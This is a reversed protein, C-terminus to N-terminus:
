ETGESATPITTNGIGELIEIRNRLDTIIAQQEQIAKVLTPILEEHNLTKYEIGDEGPLSTSVSGTFVKEYEQAIFGVANKKDQGKGEKWDFRRPKVAMIADLGLDLDRINEKLREDSIASITTTTAFITGNWGVYFRYAGAGTSYMSWNNLVSTTEASVAAVWQGTNTIKLGSGATISDNTTSFLAIGGATIRAREADDTVFILPKSTAGSGIKGGGLTITDNSIGLVAYASNDPDSTTFVAFNTQEAGTLTYSPIAGVSTAKNAASTQFAVRNNITVNSFDGFIRRPRGNITLNGDFTSASNILTIGSGNPTFAINGNASTQITIPGSDVINGTLNLNGVNANGTTSIIGTGANLNGGTINGTATILGATGLNGVNANGSVNMIGTVSLTHNPSTNGIGLNGALYNNATGDM